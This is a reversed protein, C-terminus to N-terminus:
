SASRKGYLHFTGSPYDSGVIFAVANIASNSGIYSGYGRSGTLTASYGKHVVDWMFTKPALTDLPRFIRFSGNLGGASAAARLGTEITISADSSSHSDTVTGDNNRSLSWAYDAAGTKFTAGRDLSVLAKLSDADTSCRVGSFRVEYEDFDGSLQFVVRGGIAPDIRQQIGLYIEAPHMGAKVLKDRLELAGLM